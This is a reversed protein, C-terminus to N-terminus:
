QTLSCAECKYSQYLDMMRRWHPGPAGNGILKGDVKTVPVIERISSTLWVESAQSLFAVPVDQERYSIDHEKALELILDRTIGPLVRWDKPPTLLVDSHVLFINSATGETLFGNRVLIADSTGASLAQQRALVNALLATSKIHCADWRIDELTIADIGHRLTDAMPQLPNVMAFLTPHTQPSPFGHDRSDPAGRTVQLYITLNGGGNRRILENLLKEWATPNLGSNLSISALSKDLRQLHEALRFLHGNYAPITEYVGDAFLFGRDLPSIAVETLPLFSGNFYAIADSM